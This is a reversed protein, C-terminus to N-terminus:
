PAGVRPRSESLKGRKRRVGIAVGGAIIALALTAVLGYLPLRARLYPERGMVWRDLAHPTTRCFVAGKGGYPTPALDDASRTVEFVFGGAGTSEINFGFSELKLREHVQHRQTLYAIVDSRGRPEPSWFEGPADTAYFLFDPLLDNLRAVDGKNFADIFSDVVQRTSSETCAQRDAVSPATGPSAACGALLTVATGVLATVALRV